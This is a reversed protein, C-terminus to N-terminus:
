PKLKDKELNVKIPYGFISSPFTSAQDECGLLITIELTIEDEDSTLTAESVFPNNRIEDLITCLTERQTTEKVMRHVLEQDNWANGAKRLDGKTPGTRGCRDCTIWWADEALTKWTLGETSDCMLCPLPVPM